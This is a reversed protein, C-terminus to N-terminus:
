YFFHYLYISKSFGEKCLNILGDDPLPNQNKRKDTKHYYNNGGGRYAIGHLIPRLNRTGYLKDENNGYNDTIKKLLDTENYRNKYFNPSLSDNEKVVSDNSILTNGQSFNALSISIFLLFLFHKKQM